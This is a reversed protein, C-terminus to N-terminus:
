KRPRVPLVIRVLTLKKDYADTDQGNVSLPSTVSPVLGILVARGMNLEYSLDVEHHFDNTLRSYSEGGIADFFSMMQSIQPLSTNTLEWAANVEDSGRGGLRTFHGAVTKERLDEVVVTEDVELPRNQLTYVWDGYLVVTDYLPRDLPNTVSGLLADTNPSQRLDSIVKKETTGSWKGFFTKTAGTQLPIEVLSSGGQGWRCEYQQRYLGLDTRSQMSGLGLGTLGQWSFWADDFDGLLKNSAPMEVTYTDTGPSYLHTWLSGRMQGTTADLDVIEVQNMEIESSKLNKALLWALGCFSLCILSFTLWTMEMKGTVKRLFFYDGPGIALIFLGVLLAVMTFTVFSVNQFQDMAARLQGSIDTYGIHSVRGSQGVSEDVTASTDDMAMTLLQSRDDWSALPESSFDLSIFSARGFGIMWHAILPMDDIKSITRVSSEPPLDISVSTVPLESGGATVLQETSGTFLEVAGSDDLLTTGVFKGPSFVELGGNFNAEFFEGGTVLLRGGLRVWKEIADIHEKKLDGPVARHSSIVMTRISDYGMWDLPLESASKVLISEDTFRNGLDLLEMQDKSDMGFYLTLKTTGPLFAHTERLEDLSFRRSAIAGGDADVLSVTVGSARGIRIMAPSSISAAADDHVYRIPVADGDLTEIRLSASDTQLSESSTISMPVWRGLLVKGDFGISVSDIGSEHGESSQAIVAPGFIFSSWLLTLALM